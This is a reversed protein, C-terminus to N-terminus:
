PKTEPNPAYQHPQIQIRVRMGPRYVETEAHSAFVRLIVSKHDAYMRSAEVHVCLTVDNGGGNEIAHVHGFVEITM